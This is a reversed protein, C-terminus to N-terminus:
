YSYYIGYVSHSGVGNTNGTYNFTIKAGIPIKQGANAYGYNAVCSRYGAGGSGNNVHITETWNPINTATTSNLGCTNDDTRFDIAIIADYEKTTTISGYNPSTGNSLVDIHVALAGRSRNVLFCKGM